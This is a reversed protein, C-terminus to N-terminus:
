DKTLMEYEISTLDKIAIIVVNDSGRSDKIKDIIGNLSIDVAKFLCQSYGTVSGKQHMYSIFYFRVDSTDKHLDILRIILYILWTMIMLSMIGLSIFDWPSPLQDFFIVTVKGALSIVMVIIAIIFAALLNVKKMM